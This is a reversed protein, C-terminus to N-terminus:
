ALYRKWPQIASHGKGIERYGIIARANIDFPNQGPTSERNVHKSSYITYVFHCDSDSCDIQLFNALGKKQSVKNSFVLDNKQCKPCKGVVNLITQLIESYIIIYHFPNESTIAILISM